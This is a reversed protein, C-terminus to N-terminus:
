MDVKGVEAIKQLKDHVLLGYTGLWKVWEEETAGFMHKGCIPPMNRLQCYLRQLELGTLGNELSDYVWEKCNDTDWEGMQQYKFEGPVYFPNDELCPNVKQSVVSSASKKTPEEERSQASQGRQAASERAQTSRRLRERAQEKSIEDEEKLQYYRLVEEGAITFQLDLAKLKSKLQEIQHDREYKAREDCYRWGQQLRMHTERRAQEDPSSPYLKAYEAHVRREEARSLDKRKKREKYDAKVQSIENEIEKKEINIKEKERKTDEHIMKEMERKKEKALRKGEERMKKKIKRMKEENEKEIKEIEKTKREIEKQKENETKKEQANLNSESKSFEFISFISEKVPKERAKESNKECGQRENDNGRQSSGRPQFSAELMSIYIPATSM